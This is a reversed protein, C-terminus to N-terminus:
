CSPAARSPHGSRGGFGCTSGGSAVTCKVACCSGDDVQLLRELRFRRASTRGRRPRRLRARRRCWVALALRDLGLAPRQTIGNHVAAPQAPRQGVSRSGRGRMSPELGELPPSAPIRHRELFSAAPNARSISRRCIRSPPM